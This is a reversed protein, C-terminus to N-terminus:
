ENEEEEEEEEEIDDLPQTSIVMATPRANNPMLQGLLSGILNPGGNGGSIIASGGGGGLGLLQALGGNGSGGLLNTILDLPNAPRRQDVENELPPPEDLRHSRSFTTNASSVVRRNRVDEKEEKAEAPSQPTSPTPAADVMRRVYFEVMPMLSPDIWRQVTQRNAPDGFYQRLIEVVDQDQLGNHQAQRTLQEVRRNLRTQQYLTYAILAILALIVIGAVILWQTNSNVPPVVINESM